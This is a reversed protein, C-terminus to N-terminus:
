EDPSVESNPEVSELSRVFEVELIVSVEDGVADEFAGLGWESRQLAIDASFGVIYVPEYPNRGHGNYSVDADISRLRGNLELDGTVELMSGGSKVVRDSLFNAVPHKEVDFFRAGRLIEDLVANNTDISGVDVELAVVSADPHSADIEIKGHFSNFRGVIKSFGLHNVSFYLHAHNPDLEYVGSPPPGSDSEFPEAWSQPAFLHASVVAMGCALAARRLVRIIQTQGFLPVFPNPHM